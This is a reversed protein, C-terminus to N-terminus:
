QFTGWVVVKIEGDKKKRKRKKVPEGAFDYLVNPDEKANGCGRKIGPDDDDFNMEHVIDEHYEIGMEGCRDCIVGSENLLTNWNERRREEEAKLQNVKEKINRITKPNTFTKKM